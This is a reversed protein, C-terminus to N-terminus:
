PVLVTEHWRGGELTYRRRDHLGSLQNLDLREIEWPDILLGRATKPASLPESIPLNDLAQELAERSAVPTSQAQELDYFWDMRKPTDPRFQWSAAVLEPDVPHSTFRMRYQIEISPWYANILGSNQLQRWKPSSDHMFLALKDEVQRLVLTRAQPQGDDSVTALVCVAAMPDGAERARARDAQFLELPTSM